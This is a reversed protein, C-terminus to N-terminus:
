NKGECYKKTLIKRAPLTVESKLCLALLMLLIAPKWGGVNQNLPM